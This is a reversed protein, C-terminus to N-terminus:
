VHERRVLHSVVKFEPDSTLLTAQQEIAAAAAFCDAYSMAYRSKLEVAKWFLEEEFPLIAIPLLKIEERKREGVEWGHRKAITYVVEGLNVLHLLVQSTGRRAEELIAEVRDAGPEDQLLRLLACADLVFRVSPPM